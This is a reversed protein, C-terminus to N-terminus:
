NCSLFKVERPASVLFVRGDETKVAQQAPISNDLSQSTTVPLQEPASPTFSNDIGTISGSEYFESKGTNSISSGQSVVFSGQQENRRALCSNALSEETTVLNLESLELDRQLNTDLTNIKVRGNIGLESSAEITSNPFLFLGQTDIQINGGTGAFANATIESNKKALLSTTNITINGGGGNNEATATISSENNLQLGETDIQINGGQGSASTASISGFTDLSIKDADIFLTGAKGFGENEVTITAQESVNLSPTNLTLNGSNGTQVIPSDSARQRQSTPLQVATRITSEPNSSSKFNQNIGSVKILESANIIINGANGVNFSSSSLSAGDIIQLRQTNIILNGANGVNFSSASINTRDTQSTNQPDEVVDISDANIIIEGGNGTGLTAATLVGKDTIKLKSTSLQMNGANAEGLTISSIIGSNLEIADSTQININGNKSEGFTATQIRGSDRLKLQSASIDINGGSGTSLNEARITSAIEGDISNGSLTLSELAKVELSGGLLNGQNQSLLFSADKLNVNEGTLSITGGFENSADILSQQNLNINQYKITNNNVLDLRSKTQNIGVSGSEISVLYVQGGKTTIVGGNLNIENGVLALTKDSPVSIGTPTQSFEIPSFSSDNIIQNGTGNVEIAGSNGGFGLGIPREITIIPKQTSDSAAFETGGEFQISNATTAVFSGGVDLRANEGFIIGNPNVLFFNAGGQTRLIGNITSADAGTIRTFINEIDTANEFVAQIGEPISFEEFSHFLNNGAREGGNINMIEQLQEVTTPLSGDPTIQALFSANDSPTDKLVGDPALAPRAEAEVLATPIAFFMLTSLGLKKGLRILKQLEMFQTAVTKVAGINLHAVTGM